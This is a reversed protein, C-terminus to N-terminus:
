NVSVQTASWRCNNTEDSEAVANTHDACAVLWYVGAVMDSPVSVSRTGADTDGGALEPILRAGALLRAGTLTDGTALWYRTRSPAALAGGINATFESVQFTGNAVIMAPPDSV